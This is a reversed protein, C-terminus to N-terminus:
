SNAKVAVRAKPRPAAAPRYHHILDKLGIEMAEDLIRRASDYDLHKRKILEDALIQIADWNQPQMLIHKTRLAMYHLYADLVEGSEMVCAGLEAIQLYNSSEGRAAPKGTLIEQAVDGAFLEIINREVRERCAPDACKGTRFSERHTAPLIEHSHEGDRISLTRFHRNMIYAALGHGAEHYARIVDQSLPHRAGAQGNSPRRKIGQQPHRNTHNSGANRLSM